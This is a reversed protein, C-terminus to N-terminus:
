RAVVAVHPHTVRPLPWPSPLPQSCPHECVYVVGHLVAHVDATPYLLGGGKGEGAANLPHRSEYQTSVATPKTASLRRNLNSTNNPADLQGHELHMM